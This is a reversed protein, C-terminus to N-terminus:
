LRFVVIHGDEYAPPGLLQRYTKDLRELDPLPAAIQPLEAEFRKHLIIYEVRRARMAPLDDMSIFNRFRLRSPDHVLSLIQDVYTDGYINGFSFRNPLFANTTYGMIVPRRHFHQYYYFTNFHDGIMMPYEVLPRGDPNKAVMGYFPSIESVYVIDGLDFGPPAFDSYFSHGWNQRGYYHQYVGHSTFNNPAAYSRRLPGALLLM